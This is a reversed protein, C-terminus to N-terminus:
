KEIYDLQSNNAWQLKQFFILLINKDKNKINAVLHIKIKIKLKTENDEILTVCRRM